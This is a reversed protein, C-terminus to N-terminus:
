RLPRRPRNRSGNLTPVRHGFDYVVSRVMEGPRNIGNALLRYVTLYWKCGYIVEVMRASPLRYEIYNNGVQPFRLKYATRSTSLNM